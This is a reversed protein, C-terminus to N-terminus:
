SWLIQSNIVINIIKLILSPCNLIVDLTSKLEFINGQKKKSSHISFYKEPVNYLERPTFIWLHFVPFTSSLKAARLTEQTPTRRCVCTDPRRRCLVFHHCAVLNAGRHQTLSSRHVAHWSALGGNKIEFSARHLLSQSRLPSSPNITTEIWPLANHLTRTLTNSYLSQHGM